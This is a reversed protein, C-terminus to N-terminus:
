VYHLYLVANRLSFYSNLEHTVLGFFVVMMTLVCFLLEFYCIYIIAFEAIYLIIVVSAFCFISVSWM